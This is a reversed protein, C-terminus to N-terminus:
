FKFNRITWFIDRLQVLLNNQGLQFGSDVHKMTFGFMFLFLVILKM